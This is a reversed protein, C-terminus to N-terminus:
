LHRWEQLVLSELASGSIGLGGNIDVVVDLCQSQERRKWYNGHEPGHDTRWPRM